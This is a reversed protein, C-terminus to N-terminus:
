SNDKGRFQAQYEQYQHREFLIYPIERRFREGKVFAYVTMYSTLLANFLMCFRVYNEPPISLFFWWWFGAVVGFTITSIRYFWIGHKMASAFTNYSCRILWPKFESTPREMM